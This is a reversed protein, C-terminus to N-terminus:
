QCDNLKFQLQFAFEINGLKIQALSQGIEHGHDHNFRYFVGQLTKQVGDCLAVTSLTIYFIDAM